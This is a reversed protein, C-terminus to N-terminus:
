KPTVVRASALSAGGLVCTLHANPRYSFDHYFDSIVLGVIEAVNDAVDDRVSKGINSQDM